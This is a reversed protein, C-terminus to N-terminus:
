WLENVLNRENKIEPIVQSSSDKNTYKSFGLFNMGPVLITKAPRFFGFSRASRM